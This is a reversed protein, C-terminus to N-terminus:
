QLFLPTGLKVQAYLQKVDPISMRICGHSAATGLSGVDTTGHIGQGDFFGLWRAELPNRPDGAPITQGALDGAWPKDPAHWPPDVIREAIKYRGAATDFGGKGVAIKYKRELRLRKYLRLEKADRDVGIVIPYRKAIDALTRDPRETVKVPVEVAGGGAAATLRKVLAAVLQPRKVNVGNRARQRTLRGNRVDIDADKAPDDVRKAVRDVFGEVAARPYDIRPAVTADVDGGGGLVRSFANSGERGRRRAAEVTAKVDLRVGAKDPHLVFRESRHTVTIPRRVAGALESQVRGRARDVDLGGVDVSGVKIGDAIRDDSSSDIVFVAIVFVAVLAALVAGTVAVARRM